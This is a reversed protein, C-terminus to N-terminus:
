DASGRRESSIGSRAKLRASQCELFCAISREVKPWIVKHLDWIGLPTSTAHANVYDIEEPKLAAIQLARRMSRQAGEGHSPPSTIHNADTNTSHVERCATGGSKPTFLQEVSSPMIMTKLCLCEREKALLSDTEVQMSHVRPYHQTLMSRPHYLVFGPLISTSHSGPWQFHLSV